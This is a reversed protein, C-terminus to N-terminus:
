LWDSYLWSFALSKIRDGADIKNDIMGNPSANVLMSCPGNLVPTETNRLQTESRSGRGKPHFAPDNPGLLM